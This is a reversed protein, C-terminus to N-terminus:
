MNLLTERADQALLYLALHAGPFPTFGFKQYFGAAHEDVAHVMIARIGITEAAELARVTAHQLLSYGLGQGTFKKDVALRGILVM